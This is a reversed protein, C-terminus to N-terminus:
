VRFGSGQPGRQRGKHVSQFAEFGLGWFGLGLPEMYVSMMFNFTGSVMTLIFPRESRIGSRYHICIYIYIHATKLIITGPTSRFAATTAHRRTHFLSVIGNCFGM